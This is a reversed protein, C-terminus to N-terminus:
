GSGCTDSSSAEPASTMLPFPAPFLPEGCRTWTLGRHGRGATDTSDWPNPLLLQPPLASLLCLDSIVFSKRGMGAWSGATWAWGSCYLHLPWLGDRCLLWVCHLQELEVSWDLLPLLFSPFPSGQTTVWLVVSSSWLFCRTTETLNSTNSGIGWIGMVAAWSAGPEWGWQTFDWRWCSASVCTKKLTVALGRRKSLLADIGEAIRLVWGTTPGQIGSQWCSVRDWYSFVLLSLEPQSSSCLLAQRPESIRM